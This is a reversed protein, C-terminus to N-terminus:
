SRGEPPARPVPPATVTRQREPAPKDRPRDARRKVRGPRSARSGSDAPHGAPPKMPLLTQTRTEPQLTVHEIGFGDNLIWRLTALLSPWAVMDDLVIHASLAARGSSLAWVHLDHVSRVGEVDTMTRGIQALDLHPPVGEMLVHLAELLLRISSYLILACIFLSSLPDIPTWGSLYIVGGATVAAVSGLLDGAVHLLAARANLTREARRLTWLVALNVALGLAAIVAVAGGMVPRPTHLRQIASLAISGVVVLMLLANALAAVVEARGLGYSHRQSPPRRAVWAALTALGLATADTVMHGADSLLALSGAWWGGAAEVLAFGFTLALAWIFQDHGGGHHQGAV